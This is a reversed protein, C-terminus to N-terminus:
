LTRGGRVAESTAVEHPCQNAMFEVSTKKPEEITNVHSTTLVIGYVM